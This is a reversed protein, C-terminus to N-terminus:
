EVSRKRLMQMIEKLQKARTSFQCQKLLSRVPDLESPSYAENVLRVEWGYAEVELAKVLAEAWDQKELLQRLAEKHKATLETALAM